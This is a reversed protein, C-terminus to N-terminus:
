AELPPMDCHLAQHQGGEGEGEGVGRADFQFRSIVWRVDYLCKLYMQHACNQVFYQLSCLLHMNCLDLFNGM